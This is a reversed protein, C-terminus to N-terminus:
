LKTDCENMMSLSNQLNSSFRNLAEVIEDGDEQRETIENKLEERVKQLETEMFIELQTSSKEHSDEFEQLRTHLEAVKTDREFREEKWQSGLDETALTLQKLIRGERNLRDKRENTFSEQLSTVMTELEKGIVEIDKPIRQHEEQFRTNLDGVKQELARFRIQVTDIREDIVNNLREEMSKIKQECEQKITQTSELRRKIEQSLSRDMDNLCVRLEAVVHEEKEKRIKTKERMLAEFTGDGIVANVKSGKPTTAVHGINAAEVASNLMDLSSDEM